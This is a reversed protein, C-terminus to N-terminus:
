PTEELNEKFQKRYQIPTIHVSARFRQSFYSPSSFGTMRAIQAVSYDTTRLLERCEQLRLNLMYNIPSIGYERSFVHALHYKSIHVAEALIELTLNERYHNDIYRRAATSERSVNHRQVVETAFGVRRAIRVLVVTLLSQCIQEYGTQKGETERLMDRLLHLIDVQSGRFTLHRWPLQSAGDRPLFFGDVGLAIYELPAAPTGIETHETGPELIVLDGECVPFSSNEVQFRGSGGVVYFLETFRHSHTISHWDPGYRSSSIYLLTAETLAPQSRPAIDYRNLSM